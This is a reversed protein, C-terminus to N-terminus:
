GGMFGAFVAVSLVLYPAPNNSYVVEAIVGSILLIVCIIFTILRVRAYRM